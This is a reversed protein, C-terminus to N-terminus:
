DYEVWKLLASVASTGSFSQAFVVFYLSNDNLMTRTIFDHKNRFREQASSIESKSTGTLASVYGGNIKHEDGTISSIDVSYEISSDDEPMPTWTATNATVDRYQCVDYVIDGNTYVVTELLEAFRRNIKGNFTSAQRIAFVPSRTTTISRTTIGNSQIHSYGPLRYGGESIVTGCIQKMSSSTATVGNNRIEYRLPLDPTSMYTGSVNNAHNIEHVWINRGNMNFGFRVRGVGLWQLDFVFIHAKTIDLHISSFNKAPIGNDLNDLNWDAQIVKTDVVSGTIDSRLVAYLDTGNLEFFVGNNDDFYGIRQILNTKGAGMVGTMKISLGKGPVYGYPKYSERIAYEGDPTGVTLQVSSEASVYSVSAGAGNTDSQFVGDNASYTLKSDILGFPLGMKARNFSDTQSDDIIISQVSDGGYGRRATPTNGNQRGLVSM